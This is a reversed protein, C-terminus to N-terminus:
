RVKQEKRPNLRSCFGKRTIWCSKADKCKGNFKVYCRLYEGLQQGKYLPEEIDLCNGIPKNLGQMEWLLEEIKDKIKNRKTPKICMLDILKHFYPVIDQFNNKNFKIYKKLIDYVIDWQGLRIRPILECADRIAVAIDDTYYSKIKEELNDEALDERIEKEFKELWTKPDKGDLTFEIKGVKSDKQIGICSLKKM